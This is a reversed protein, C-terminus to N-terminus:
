VIANYNVNYKLEKNYKKKLKIRDKEIEILLKIILQLLQKSM